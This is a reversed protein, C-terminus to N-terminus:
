EAYPKCFVEADCIWAAILPLTPPMPVVCNLARELVSTALMEAANVGGAAGAHFQAVQWPDVVGPEPEPEPVVDVSPAVRYAM